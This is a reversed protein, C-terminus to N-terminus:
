SKVHQSRFRSACNTPGDSESAACTEPELTNKLERPRKETWSTALTKSYGDPSPAAPRRRGASPGRPPPVTWPEVNWLPPHLPFWTYDSAIKTRIGLIQGANRICAPHASPLTPPAGTGAMWRVGGMWQVGRRRTELPRGRCPSTRCCGGRSRSRPTCPSPTSTGGRRRRRWPGSSPVLVYM